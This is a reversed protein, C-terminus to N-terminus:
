ALGRLTFWFRSPQFRALGKRRTSLAFHTVPLIAFIRLSLRTLAAFQNTTARILSMIKGPSALIDAILKALM